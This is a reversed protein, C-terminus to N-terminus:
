VFLDTSNVTHAKFSTKKMANYRRLKEDGSSEGLRRWCTGAAWAIWWPSSALELTMLCSKVFGYLAPARSSARAFLITLLRGDTTEPANHAGHATWVSTALISHM